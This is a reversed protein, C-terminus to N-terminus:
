LEQRETDAEIDSDSSHVADGQRNWSAVNTWYRNHTLEGVTHFGPELENLVMPVRHILSAGTVASVDANAISFQFTPVGDFVVDINPQQEDTASVAVIFSFLIKVGDRAQGLITVNMGACEGHAITRNLANSFVGVETQVSYCERRTYLQITGGGSEELVPYGIQAAISEVVARPWYEAASVSNAIQETFADLTLGVGFAQAFARDADDINVPMSLRLGHFEIMSAMMSPIVPMFVSDSFGGGLVVVNNEKALTDLTKALQRQKWHFRTFPFVAEDCLTLIHVQKSILRYLHSFVSELTSNTADICFHPRTEDIIKELKRMGSVTFALSADDEMGLLEGATKTHKSNRTFAAVMKFGKQIAIKATSIGYTGMGISCFRIEQESISPSIMCLFLLVFYRLRLVM